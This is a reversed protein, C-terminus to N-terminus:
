QRFFPNRIDVVKLKRARSWNPLDTRTTQIPSPTPTRSDTGGAAFVVHVSARLVSAEITVPDLVLPLSAKSGKELLKLFPQVSKMSGTATFNMTARGLSGEETKQPRNAIQSIQLGARDAAVRILQEVQTVQATKPINRAAAQLQQRAELSLPTPAQKGRANGEQAIDTSRVMPTVFSITFQYGETVLRGTGGTVQQIYPGAKRLRRVLSRSAAQNPAVGEIRVRGGDMHLRSLYIQYLEPATSWGLGKMASEVASRGPDGLALALAMFMDHPVGGGQKVANMVSVRWSTLAVPDVTGPTSPAATRAGASQSGTHSVNDKSPVLVNRGKLKATVTDTGLRIVVAGESGIKSNLRVIQAYTPTAVIARHENGSGLVAITVLEHVSPPPGAGQQDCPVPIKETLKRPCGVLVLTLVLVAIGSLRLPNPQHKTPDLTDM